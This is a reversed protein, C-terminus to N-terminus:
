GFLIYFVAMLEEFVLHLRHEIAVLEHAASFVDVGELGRHADRALEVVGEIPDDAQSVGQTEEMVAHGVLAIQADEAIMGFPSTENSDFFAFSFSVDLRPHVFEFGTFAIGEMAVVLGLGPTVREHGQLYEDAIREAEHLRNM